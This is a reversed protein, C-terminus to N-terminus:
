LPWRAPRTHVWTGSPGRLVKEFSPNLPRISGVERPSGGGRQEKELEEREVV